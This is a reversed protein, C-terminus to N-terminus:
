EKRFSFIVAAYQSKRPLNELYETLIEHSRFGVLRFNPFNFILKLHIIHISNQLFTQSIFISNVVKLAQVTTGAIELTLLM